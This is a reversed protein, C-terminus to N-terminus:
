ACILTANTQIEMRKIKSLGSPAFLVKENKNPAIKQANLVSPKEPM